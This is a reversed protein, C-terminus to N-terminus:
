PSSSSPTIPTACTRMATTAASTDYDCQGALVAKHATFIRDEVEITTDTLCGLRWLQVLGSPCPEGGSLEVLPAATSTVSGSGAASTRARKRPDM